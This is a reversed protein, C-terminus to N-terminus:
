RAQYGPPKADYTGGGGCINLVEGEPPPPFTKSLRLLEEGETENMSLVSASLKRLAGLAM